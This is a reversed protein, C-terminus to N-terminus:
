RDANASVAFTRRRARRKELGDAFVLEFSRQWVCRRGSGVRSLSAPRLDLVAVIPPVLHLPFARQVLRANPLEHSARTRARRVARIHRFRRVLFSSATRFRPGANGVVARSKHTTTGQHHHSPDNKKENTRGNALAASVERLRRRPAHPRGTTKPSAGYHARGGSPRANAHFSRMAKPSSAGALPRPSQPLAVVSLSSPGVGV